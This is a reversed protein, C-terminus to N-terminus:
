AILTRRPTAYKAEVETLEDAVQKRLAEDSKLLATLKSITSKLEKQETELEIKSM